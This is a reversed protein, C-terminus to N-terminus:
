PAGGESRHSGDVPTRASVPETPAPVVPPVADPLEIDYVPIRARATAVLQGVTWAITAVIVGAAIWGPTLSTGVVGSNSLVAFVLAVLAVQLTYTMVAMLLAAEPVIRTAAGVVASGFLFFGLAIAGGVLAGRAAASDTTLGGVIAVAVVAAAVSVGAVALVRPTGRPQGRGPPATTSM